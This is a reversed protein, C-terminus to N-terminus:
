QVGFEGTDELLENVKAAMKEANAQLSPSEGKSNISEVIVEGIGAACAQRWVREIMTMGALLVLPKGPLRTSAYRAPIVIHVM